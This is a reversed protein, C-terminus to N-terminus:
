RDRIERLQQRITERGPAATDPYLREGMATLTTLRHAAQEQESVLTQLKLARSEVNSTSPSDRLSSLQEELPQLWNNTEELKDQYSRHDELLGQWRNIVEKSM